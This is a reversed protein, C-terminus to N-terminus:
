KKFYLKRRTFAALGILGTGFLMMSAPEPVPAPQVDNAFVTMDEWDWDAKESLLDELYIYASKDNPNYATLIHEIGADQTNLNNATYFSYDISDNHEADVDFYYGFTSDFSTWSTAIPNISDYLDTIKWSGNDDWFTITKQDIPEDSPAFVEFKTVWATPNYIDDVTYLGFGSEYSAQEVQIQFFATGESNTTLDTIEWFDMNGNLDYGPPPTPLAMAITATSLFVALITLTSKLLKM